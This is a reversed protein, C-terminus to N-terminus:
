VEQDCGGRVARVRAEVGDLLRALGYDMTFGTDEPWEEGGTEFVGAEMLRVLNPYRGPDVVAGLTAAYNQIHAASEGAPAAARARGLDLSIRSLDRLAGVLFLAILLAEEEGLGSGSLARLLEEMWALQNPGLPPTNLQARILWPHRGYLDVLARAVIEVERRWGGPAGAASPPAAIAADVMLDILQEKSSLYRYLSMTSYGLESAVRQMSLEELGEADAVAIAAAVIKALSLGPKPGRSPRATQDRWLLELSSPRADGGDATM